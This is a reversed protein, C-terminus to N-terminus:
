VPSCLVIMMVAYVPLLDPELFCDSRTVYRLTVCMHMSLGDLTGELNGASCNMGHAHKKVKRQTSYEIQCAYALFCIIM